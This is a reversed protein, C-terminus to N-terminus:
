KPAAGKAPKAAPAAPKGGGAPTKEASAAAEATAAAPAAEKEKEKKGKKRAAATRVKPLGFVSDGENWRGDKLLVQIREIRSLVSRRRLLQSKIVLSKDISM